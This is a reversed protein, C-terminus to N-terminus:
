QVLDQRKAKARPVPLAEVTKDSSTTTVVQFLELAWGTNWGFQNIHRTCRLIYGHYSTRGRPKQGVCLYLRFLQLKLLLKFRKLLGVKIEDLSEFGLDLHIGLEYWNNSTERVIGALTKQIGHM